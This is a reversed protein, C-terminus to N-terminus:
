NLGRDLTEPISGSQLSDSVEDLYQKDSLLRGLNTLAMASKPDLRVARRAKAMANYIDGTKDLAVSRLCVPRADDPALGEVNKLAGIAGKIDGASLLRQGRELEAQLARGDQREPM